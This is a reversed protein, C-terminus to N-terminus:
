ICARSGREMGITMMHSKVIYFHLVAGTFNPELENKPVNRSMSEAPDM